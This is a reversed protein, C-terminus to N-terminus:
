RSGVDASIRGDFLRMRMSDLLEAEVPANFEFRVDSSLSIEMSGSELRFRNLTLLDGSKRVRHSKEFRADSVSVVAAHVGSGEHRLAISLAFILAAAVTALPGTIRPWRGLTPDIALEGECAPTKCLTTEAPFQAQAVNRLKAEVLRTM